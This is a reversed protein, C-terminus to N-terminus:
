EQWRILIPQAFGRGMWSQVLGMSVERAYVDVITPAKGQLNLAGLHSANPV